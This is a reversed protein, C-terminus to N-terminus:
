DHLVLTTITLNGDIYTGEWYGGKHADIRGGMSNTASYYIDVTGSVKTPDNEDWYASARSQRNEQRQYSSSNILNKKIQSEAEYIVQDAINNLVLRDKAMLVDEETPLFLFANDVQVKEEETLTEYYALAEEAASISSYTPNIPDFFGVEDFLGISIKVKCNSAQEKSDEYDGLSEFIAQAEEYQGQEFMEQAKKYDSSSCGCLALAMTLVLLLAVIKKMGM